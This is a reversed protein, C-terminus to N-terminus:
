KKTEYKLKLSQIIDAKFEEETRETEELDLIWSIAKDMACLIDEETFQYKGQAAKYGEIFFEYSSDEEGYTREKALKKIESEIGKKM